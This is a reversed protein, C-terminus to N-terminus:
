KKYPFKENLKKQRKKCADCPKIGFAKTIKAITDGVGKSQGEVSDAFEKELDIYIRNAKKKMAKLNRCRLMYKRM